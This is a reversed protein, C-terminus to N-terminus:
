RDIVRRSERVVRDGDPQLYVRRTIIVRDGDPEIIRRQTESILRNRGSSYRRHNYRNHHHRDHDRDWDRRGERIEIGRGLDVSVQAANTFPATAVLGLSLLSLLAKNM